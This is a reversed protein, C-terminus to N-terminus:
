QPKRSFCRVVCALAAIMVSFSRATRWGQVEQLWGVVASIQEYQLIIARAFVCAVGYVNPLILTQGTHETRQCGNKTHGSTLRLGIHVSRPVLHQCLRPLKVKDNPAPSSPCPEQSGLPRQVDVNTEHVNGVPFVYM